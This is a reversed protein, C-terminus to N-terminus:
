RAGALYRERLIGVHHLEHGAIIYVLARVTVPHDSATGFRQWAAEPFGRLMQLNSQRVLAFEATLDNWSRSEFEATAIYDDQEFGPLPTEDGRAIRLARYAFIRESDTIHGLLERISWKGEAYRFLSREEDISRLLEFTDGFSDELASLVDDGPVKSVYTRYYEFYEDGAPPGIKLNAM